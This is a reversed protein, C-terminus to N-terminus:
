EGVHTPDKLARREYISLLTKEAYTDIPKVRGADQIPINEFYFTSSYSLSQFIFLLTLFIFRQM